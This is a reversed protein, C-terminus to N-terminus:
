ERDKCRRIESVSLINDTCCLKARWEVRHVADLTAACYVQLLFHRTHHIYKQQWVQM